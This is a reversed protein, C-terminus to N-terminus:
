QKSWFHMNKKHHKLKENRPTEYPCQDCSYKAEADAHVNRIHRLKSKRQVFVADYQPSDIKIDIDCSVIKDKDFSKMQNVVSSEESIVEEHKDITEKNINKRYDEVEAPEPVDKIEKIQLDRGVKIFEKIRGHLFSTKGLYVYELVPRLELCNIGRLFVISNSDNMEGLISRFVPSCAKLVFKHAKFKVLDDCILTVDSSEGTTFLEGIVSQCHSPYSHFNKQNM